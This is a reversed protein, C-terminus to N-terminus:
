DGTNPYNASPPHGPDGGNLGNAGPVDSNLGGGDKGQPIDATPVIFATSYGPGEKTDPHAGVYVRVGNMEHGLEKVQAEAYELYDKIDQLSWWSSRNDPRKVIDNSILTHRSDFAHDLAKAEDPTIVGKPANAM